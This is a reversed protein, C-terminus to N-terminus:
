ATTAINLMKFGNPNVVDSGTRFWMLMGREGTPRQNPGFLVPVIEITTGISDVIVFNSFDGYVLIHNEETVAPDFNGDMNSSEHIPKRLLTGTGVGEFQKSGNATEFQDLTDIISGAAMWRARPQWRPALAQKVAYVDGAAFTEAAVPGMEASTGNLATIIGKPQNVGSGTTYATAMLQDAADVVLTRLESVLNRADLALEFSWKVFANGKHTPIDPRALAPTTEAWEEHEDTWEATAGASTVGSWQGSTTQVVRSIQRLPNVSGDSTLLISPDLTFPVMFGGASDTGVGMARMESRLNQVATFAAQEERDFLMHGREHDNILKAFAGLYAPNGTTAIWRETLNRHVANGERLLGEAKEQAEAPLDSREIARMAKDRTSGGPQDGDYDAVGRETRLGSGGRGASRIHELRINKQETDLREFEDVLEDFRERDSLTPNEIEGLREMEAAVDRLRNVVQHYREAPNM